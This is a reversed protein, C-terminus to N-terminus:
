ENSETPETQTEDAAQEVEEISVTPEAPRWHSIPVQLNPANVLEIFEGDDTLVAYESVGDPREKSIVYDGNANEYSYLEARASAALALALLGTGIISWRLM